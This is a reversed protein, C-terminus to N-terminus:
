IRFPRRRIDGWGVDAPACLLFAAVWDLGGIDKGIETPLLTGIDGSGEFGSCGLCWRKHRLLEEYDVLMM